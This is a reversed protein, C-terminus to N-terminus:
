LLESSQRASSNCISLRVYNIDRFVAGTFCSVIHLLGKMFLYLFMNINLGSRFYFSATSNASYSSLAIIKLRYLM